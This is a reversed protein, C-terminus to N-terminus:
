LAAIGPEVSSGLEMALRPNGSRWKARAARGDSKSEAFGRMAANATGMSTVNIAPFAFKEKKAKDLMKCYTKYDAFPM